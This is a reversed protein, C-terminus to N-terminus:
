ILILEALGGVPRCWDAAEEVAYVQLECALLVINQVFPQKSTIYSQM